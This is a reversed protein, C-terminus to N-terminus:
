YFAKQGMGYMFHAQAVETQVPKGEEGFFEQNRNAWIAILPYCGSRLISTSEVQGTRGGEKRSGAQRDKKSDPQSGVTQRPKRGKVISDHRLEIPFFCQDLCSGLVANKFTSWFSWGSSNRQKTPTRDSLFQVSEGSQYLSRMAPHFHLLSFLLVLSSFCLSSSYSVAATKNEKLSCYATCLVQKMAIVNAWGAGKM